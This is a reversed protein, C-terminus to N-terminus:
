PLIETCRLLDRQILWQIKVLAEQILEQHTVRDLHRCRGPNCGFLLCDSPRHQRGM